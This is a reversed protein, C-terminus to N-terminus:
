PSTSSILPFLFFEFGVLNIIYQNSNQTWVNVILAVEKLIKKELEFQSLSNFTLTGVM